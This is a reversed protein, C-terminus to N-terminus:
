FRGLQRMLELEGIDIKSLRAIEELSVNNETLAKLAQKRYGSDQVLSDILFGKTHADLEKVALTNRPAAQVQFTRDASAAMFRPTEPVSSEAVRAPRSAAVEARPQFNDGTAYFEARASIEAREREAKKEAKIQEARRLVAAFDSQPEEPPAPMSRAITPESKAAAAAAPKAAAPKEGFVMPKIAKGISSLFNMMAPNEASEDTSEAIKIKAPIVVKQQQEPQKTRGVSFEDREYLDRMLEEAIASDDATEAREDFYAAPAVMPKAAPLPEPRPAAPEAAAKLQQSKAPVPEVRAAARSKKLARKKEEAALAAAAKAAKRQEAPSLKKAKAQVPSRPRAAKVIPAPEEVLPAVPAPQAVREGEASRALEDGRRLLNQLREIRSDFMVTYGEMDRYFEKMDNHIRTKYFEKIQLDVQRTIKLSLIVYLLATMCVFLLVALGIEM